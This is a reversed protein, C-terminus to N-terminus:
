ISCRFADNTDHFDNLLIGDRAFVSLFCEFCPKENINANVRVSMCITKNTLKLGCFYFYEFSVYCKSSFGRSYTELNFQDAGWASNTNLSRYLSVHGKRVWFEFASM